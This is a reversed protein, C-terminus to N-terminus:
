SESLMFTLNKTIARCTGSSRNTIKLDTDGQWESQTIEIRRNEFKSIIEVKKKM